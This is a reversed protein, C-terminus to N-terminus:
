HAPVAAIKPKAGPQGKFSFPDQPLARANLMICDIEVLYPFHGANNPVLASLVFGREQYFGLAEIFSPTEDYIHRISLESQLGVFRSLGEGAGSAVAVDHGQADIKLFPREFHFKSSYKAHEAQLTSTQVSIVRTTQMKRDFMAVGGRSAVHFSSFESDSMVRFDRTGPSADLAVQEVFWLADRSAKERL